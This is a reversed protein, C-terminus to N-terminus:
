PKLYWDAANWTPGAFTPNAVFNAVTPDVLAVSPQYYLPIEVTREVFVRQFDAMAARVIEFDVSGRVTELAEDIEPDDIHAENAGVPPVQSSHYTAYNSLPDISNSFFHHALDFNSRSLACPTDPLATNYDAFILNSDVPNVVSEIGVDHLWAAVLALTDVRVQRTTTCLEIKARLGDKERVGDGDEDIWGAESLITRAQDPDHRVAPQDAYFWADPPVASNAVTAAGGVLRAVIEDKDIAHAVALRMAPDAMPCGDGRDQVAPNRSCGGVGDEGVASGDAWNPRLMEYTLAPIASVEDGLDEVKPLDSHQLEIAVDIEGGRYGAIEGDVDGYWKFVITEVFAPADRQFSRYFDNRVLRLEQGPTLSQFSFAGSTPVSAIEEARFGAGARQDAISFRELYHRPLPATVLGVYGEYIAGFHLVMETDSPCEWETIDDWGLTVAAANDPDLVWERAYAFDDCTLPTGDSWRLDPELQWTVTMADGGIGPALVGGNELTPIDVALDPAYKQDHTVVVLSAWAASAVNAETQQGAYFPNFQKPEQSDGVVVQGGPAGETPVYSTGFLDAEVAAPSGSTGLASASPDADPRSAPPSVAPECGASLSLLLLAIAPLTSNRATV